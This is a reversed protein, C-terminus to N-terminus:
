AEGKPPREGFVNSGIRVEDSGQVIAAEYDASMGMSVELEGADVGLGRAIEDRVEVLRAFDENRGDDGVAARSRALAGITMVGSLRLHPCARVIHACLELAAAGPAVGAKSAEGSTNIQVMVRLVREWSSDPETEAEAGAAAVLAARGTELLDAKKASDVSSVCWLNRLGALARAKNSQLNGIFHWKISAPLVRAKDTLEQTYNEGFHTAAAASQQHLALIDSAPKLKSVLVLRVPRPHTQQLQAIRQSITTFADLLQKARQPTTNMEESM